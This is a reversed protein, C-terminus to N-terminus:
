GQSWSKGSFFVILANGKRNVRPDLGTGISESISASGDKKITIVRFPSWGRNGSATSFLVADTDGFNHRPALFGTFDLGQGFEYILRGNLEISFLRDNIRLEGGVTSLSQVYKQSRDQALAHICLAVIFGWICMTKKM